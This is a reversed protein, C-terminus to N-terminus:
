KKAKKGNLKLLPATYQNYLAFLYEIRANENTFAQPRYCLDVAKDLEQHAKVLKPPMTLPHYLDALSSQPFAKRAGLVKQAKEEVKKVNKSLPDKPWPYNNYVITNSYSIRSELRGCIAKTWSMHMLSTLVGFIFVTAEPVMQIKNSAIVNSEFFAIPIYTRNESSVEPIALYATHPQSIQAFLTPTGAKKRTLQASSNLRSEKVAEVRKLTYPLRKLASPPINKLWLCYRFHNNIFDRGSIFPRIWESAEPELRLFTNKEMEDKFLFNGGDTPKNGWIMKPVNCIPKTRNSIVENPGEVLYPSINDVERSHPDGSINDYEFLIRKKPLYNSFGVIVVHVGAVGKAENGWKFTQHAFHIKIDHNSLLDLWLLSVQEGQTISNTSVFAAVTKPFRSQQIFQAAKKFWCSVYDLVKIGKRGLFVLAMDEKQILNQYHHGSFPPNGLIYSLEERLVVDEWNIRLSNGHVIKASKSLPLRVFYQGFEESVRMNMQHDILWMAVEAIKSSFEDYEIGYFQDVDLWLISSVDLVQEGAKFQERLIDIELLRLERYTIILFNGSGCAPDLFKLTSLKHHFEKLKKSNSKVKEFEVKLGDLFLPKILKLINKESTYHAGLNRREEPNMVSQFLSGFIAPSIKGWNLSSAELLISRMKSNFSAIPLTEEFLKGNVYPFQNLNEDLNKLRKERPTNLIQFFQAMYAGLDSGDENTKQDVFEKFIDKEFISTDDAFLIFLLRVLYVELHHGEYGFEELQDHFKGMLEAAEINVPDEEKFTRKQYGAIFGFLKVNKYLESVYFEHETREDLDFLKIKEFDSVLIYKPLEHEKLGPFYDTAQEFAKDLSRGKSKHEVLLTGKWFLDIFGQNGSLKKVPEEFTAVRRRSIGFVNFFDNWFSDKEAREKTEDAWEISFKLARDKIENWSLAM